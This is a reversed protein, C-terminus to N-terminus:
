ETLGASRAADLLLAIAAPDAAFKGKAEAWVATAKETEKLVGYATILRAWEKAAGGESAMRESLQAVMGRIMAQQDEATMNQADQVQDATPGPMAEGIGAMRAVDGIQEKIPAIWPADDPGEALLDSWLRYALDARGNQALDLGSYYRARPASPDGQIARGLASEAEPSVYGGAAIIMLEAVDTWDSPKVQDGLLEIMRAKAKWAAAFNGLRAEHQALLAQGRPDDPRQSATKRLQAVLDLYTQDVQDAMATIDGVQAEAEAQGPRAAQQADIEAIRLKLPADPAGGAGIQQYLLFGGAFVLVAVVAAAGLSVRQDDGKALTEAQLARDAELVRRSVEVRTREAEDLSLVGRGLDNEVESLQDRYIQLDYAHDSQAAKGRRLLPRMLLAAVIASLAFATLWFAM